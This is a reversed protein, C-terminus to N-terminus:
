GSSAARRPCSSFRRRFGVDVYLNRRLTGPRNRVQGVGDTTEGCRVVLTIDDPQNVEISYFGSGDTVAKGVIPGAGPQIAIVSAFVQVLAGQPPVGTFKNFVHGERFTADDM